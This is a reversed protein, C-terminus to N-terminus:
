ASRPSSLHFESKFLPYIALMLSQMMENLFHSFSIASLVPFRTSEDMPIVSGGPVEGPMANVSEPASM